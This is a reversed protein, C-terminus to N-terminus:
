FRFYLFPNYSADVVFAVSLMLIAALVVNCLVTQLVVTNRLKEMLFQAARKPLSTSGVFLIVFLVGYSGILYLAKEDVLMGDAGFMKGIYLAGYNM